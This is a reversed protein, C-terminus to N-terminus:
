NTEAAELRRLKKKAAAAEDRGYQLALSAAIAADRALAEV